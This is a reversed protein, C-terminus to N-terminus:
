PDNVQQLCQRVTKARSLEYELRMKAEKQEVRDFYIRKRKDFHILDNNILQNIKSCDNM